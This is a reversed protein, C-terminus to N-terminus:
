AIMSLSQLTISKDMHFNLYELLFAIFSPDTLVPSTFEAIKHHPYKQLGALQQVQDASLKQVMSAGAACDACYVSGKELSFFAHSSFSTTACVSCQGFNPKFGLYSTLKLLFYILILVPQRGEQMAQLINVTFDFFLADGQDEAMTQDLLELLALAYPLRDMDLRLANFPDILDAQTLIQLSRTSRSSVVIELLNLSELLGAFPSNKRYVGRAIVKLIGRDRTFLTVIKSSEKWRISHLVLAQSKILDSM